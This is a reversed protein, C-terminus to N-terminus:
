RGTDARRLAQQGAPPAAKAARALAEPGEKRRLEAAVGVLHEDLRRRWRRFLDELEHRSFRSLPDKLRSQMAAWDLLSAGTPEFRYLALTRALRDALPTFPDRAEDPLRTMVSIPDGAELEELWSGGTAAEGAPAPGTDARKLTAYATSVTKVGVREFRITLRQCTQGDRTETKTSVVQGVGWEPKGAHLIRDGMAWAPQDGM